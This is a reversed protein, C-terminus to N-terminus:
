GFSYRTLILSGKRRRGDRRDDEETSRSPLPLRPQGTPACVVLRPRHRLKDVNVKSWFSRARRPVHKQLYYSQNYSQRHGSIWGWCLRVDFAEDGTLSPIGSSKKAVKLWVGGQRQDALRSEFAAANSFTRVEVGDPEELAKALAKKYQLATKGLVDKFDNIALVARGAPAPPLWISWM